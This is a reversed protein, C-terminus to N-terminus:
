RPSDQAVRLWGIYTATMGNSTCVHIYIYIYIYKYTDAPRRYLCMHQAKNHRAIGCTMIVAQSAAAAAVAAVAQSAAAYKHRGQKGYGNKSVAAVAQSAAAAAPVVPM